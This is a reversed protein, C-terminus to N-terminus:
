MLELELTAGTSGFSLHKRELYKLSYIKFKEIVLSIICRFFVSAKQAVENRSPTGRRLRQPRIKNLQFIVSVHQFSLLGIVVSLQYLFFFTRM